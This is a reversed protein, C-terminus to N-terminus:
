DAELGDPEPDDLLMESYGIIANLPTRLEHSMSALFHSKADNARLAEDRAQALQRNASTLESLQDGLQRDVEAWASDQGLLFGGLVLVELVLTSLYVVAHRADGAAAPFTVGAGVAWLLGGLALLSVIAVLVGMRRGGALFGVVVVLPLGILAPAAGGYGTWAVWLIASFTGVLDVWIAIAPRDLARATAWGAFVVLAAALLLFGQLNMGRVVLSLVAAVTFALTIDRSLTMAARGPDRSRVLGFSTSPEIRM